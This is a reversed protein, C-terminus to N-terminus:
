SVLSTASPETFCARISHAAGRHGRQDIQSRTETSGPITQASITDELRQFRSNRFLINAFYAVPRSSCMRIIDKASVGFKTSTTALAVIGYPAVYSQEYATVETTRNSFSSM